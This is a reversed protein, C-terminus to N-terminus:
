VGRRRIAVIQPSTASIPLARPIGEHLVMTQCTSTPIAPRSKRPGVEALRLCPLTYHHSGHFRNPKSHRRQGHANSQLRPWQSHDNAGDHRAPSQPCRKPESTSPKLILHGDGELGHVVKRNAAVHSNDGGRRELSAAAEYARRRAGSARRM